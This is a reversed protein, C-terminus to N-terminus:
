LLKYSFKVGTENIWRTWYLQWTPDTPKGIDFTNKDKWVYGEPVQWLLGEDILKQRLARQRAQAQAFEDQEAQPLTAVWPEFQLPIAGEPWTYEFQQTVSM